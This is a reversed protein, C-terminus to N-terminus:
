HYFNRRQKEALIGASMEASFGLADSVNFAVQNTARVYLAFPSKDTM